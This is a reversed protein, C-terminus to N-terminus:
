SGNKSQLFHNIMKNAETLNIHKINADEPYSKCVVKLVAVRAEIDSYKREYGEVNYVPEWANRECIADKTDKSCFANPSEILIREVEEIRGWTPVLRQFDKEEYEGEAFLNYKAEKHDPIKNAQQLKTLEQLAKVTDNTM